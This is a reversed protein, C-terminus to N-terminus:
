PNEPETLLISWQFHCGSSIRIFSLFLIVSYSIIISVYYKQLFIFFPSASFKVWDFEFRFCMFLVIFQYAWIPSFRDWLRYISFPKVIPFTFSQQFERLFIFYNLQQFRHILLMSLCFLHQLWLIGVFAITRFIM